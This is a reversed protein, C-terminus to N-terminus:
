YLNVIRNLSNKLYLTDNHLQMLIISGEIDVISQISLERAKDLPYKTSFLYIMAKEWMSFFKKIIDNFVDEVHATELITNAFYCGGVEKSFINFIVQAMKDLRESIKLEEEYAISFVQDKFFHFTSLLCSTMVEEKNKFHHYFAGKTLGSALALDSMSTRYYGKERFTRISNQILNQKTIKQTPM